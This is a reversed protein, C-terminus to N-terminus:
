RATEAQTLRGRVVLKSPARLIGVPSWTMGLERHDVLATAEIEYEDGIATVTAEAEVKLSVAPRSALDLTGEYRDFHGQVTMLGYFHRVHFEVRSRSPDLRWTGSALGTAATPSVPQTRHGAHDGTRRMTTTSRAMPRRAPESEM